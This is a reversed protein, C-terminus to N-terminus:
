LELPQCPFIQVIGLPKKIIILGAIDIYVTNSGLKYGQGGMGDCLAPVPRISQLILQLRQSLIYPLLAQPYAGVRVM